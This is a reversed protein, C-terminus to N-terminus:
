DGCVAAIVDMDVAGPNSVYLATLGSTSALFHAERGDIPALPWVEGTTSNKRLQLEVPNQTPDTPLARLYVFSGSAVAPHHVNVLLAGAPIRFRMAGGERSTDVTASPSQNGLDREEATSSSIGLNIEYRIRM